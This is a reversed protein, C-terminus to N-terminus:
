ICIKIDKKTKVTQSASKHKSLKNYQIDMPQGSSIEKLDEEGVMAM